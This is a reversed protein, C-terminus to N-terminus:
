HINENESQREHLRWDARSIGQQLLNHLMFLLSADLNLTFGQGTRPRLELTLGGDERPRGNLAYALFGDEGLPLHRADDDQFPQELAGQHLLERTQPRSAVAPQGGLKDMEQELVALLLRCYRRTLWARYEDGGQTTIRLQLRDEEAVYNVNIQHLADTM